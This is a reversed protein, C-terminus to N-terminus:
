CVIGSFVSWGAPACGVDFAVGVLEGKSALVPVADGVLLGAFVAPDFTDPAGFFDAGVLVFFVPSVVAGDVRRATEPCAEHKVRKDGLPVLV